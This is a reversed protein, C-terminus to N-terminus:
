CSKEKLKTPQLARRVVAAQSGTLGVIYLDIFSHEACRWLDAM